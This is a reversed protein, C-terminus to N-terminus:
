RDMGSGGPTSEGPAENTVRRAVELIPLHATRPDPTISHVDEPADPNIWVIPVGSRRAQSVVDATGGLGGPPTGRWLAVILDARRVLMDGVTAYRRARWHREEMATKGSNSGYGEAVPQSWRWDDIAFTLHMRPLLSDFRDQSATDLASDGILFTQRYADPAFPLLAECQWGPLDLAAEAALQDAGQALASLFRLQRGRPADLPSAPQLTDLTEVSRALVRAITGRLQTEREKRAADELGGGIERHGTVAVTFVLGPVNSSTGTM